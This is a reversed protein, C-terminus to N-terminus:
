AMSLLSKQSAMGAELRYYEQFAKTSKQSECVQPDVRSTFHSVYHVPLSRSEEESNYWYYM